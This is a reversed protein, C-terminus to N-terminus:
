QNSSSSNQTNAQEELIQQVYEIYDEECIEMDFHPNNGLFASQNWESMTSYLALMEIELDLTKQLAINMQLALFCYIAYYRRIILSFQSENNTISDVYESLQRKQDMIEDYMAQIQQFFDQQDGLFTHLSDSMRRSSLILGITNDM